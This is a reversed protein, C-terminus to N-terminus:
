RSAMKSTKFRLHGFHKFICGRWCLISIKTTLIPGLHPWTPGLQAWSPGLQSWTPTLNADQAMKSAVQLGDDVYALMAHDDHRFNASPGRSIAVKPLWSPALIPGLQALNPGLPDLIPGLQALNPDLQWRPPVESADPAMKSALQLRDELYALMAHGNHQFIAGRQLPIAVKLLM